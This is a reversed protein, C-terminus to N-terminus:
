PMPVVAGCQQCIYERQSDGMRTIELRDTHPCGRLRVQRELERFEEDLPDDWVLPDGTDTPQTWQTDANGGSIAGTSFVTLPNDYYRFWCGMWEENM